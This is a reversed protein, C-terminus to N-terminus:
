GRGMQDLWNPANVVSQVDRETEHPEDDDADTLADIFDNYYWYCVDWDAILEPDQDDYPKGNPYTGHERNQQWTRLVYGLPYYFALVPPQDDDGPIDKGLAARAM